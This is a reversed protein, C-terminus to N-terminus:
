SLQSVFLIPIEAHWVNNSDRMVLYLLACAFPPKSIDRRRYSRDETADQESSWDRNKYQM